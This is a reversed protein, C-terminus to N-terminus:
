MVVPTTKRPSKMGERLGHGKVHPGPLSVRPSVNASITEMFVARWESPTQGTFRQFWRTFCSVSSYGLLDAVTTISRSPNQLYRKAYEMRITELIDSFRDGEENLIRQVTRPALGLFRSVCSLNAKGEPLLIGVARYIQERIPGDNEIPPMLDLVALAHTAMLSNAMPNRAEM